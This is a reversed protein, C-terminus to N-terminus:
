LIDKLYDKINKNKLKENEIKLEEILDAQEIKTKTLISNRKVLDDHETNLIKIEDKLESKEEKLDINSENLKKLQIDMNNNLDKLSNIEKDKSKADDRLKNLEFIKKKSDDKLFDVERDLRDVDNRHTSLERAFYIYNNLLNNLPKEDYSYKIEIDKCFDLNMPHNKVKILSEDMYISEKEDLDLSYQKAFLTVDDMTINFINSDNLIREFMVSYHFSTNKAVTKRALTNPYGVLVKSLTQNISRVPFHALKLGTDDFCKVDDKYEDDIDIDHNGISIKINYNEVLERTIIVKYDREIKEDRIHTIRSPVFTKDENDDNLPVYTRWKVKYYSDEPIKEIIERPNGDDCSIFEDCDLPCVIDADYENLAIDLLRNYKVFPEFYRDNDKIVVIPLSEEELKKLIESTDDTSGNDLIIMSDVINLHYRIFSEIIDAENKITTISIIKM